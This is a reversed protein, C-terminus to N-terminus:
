YCIMCHVFSCIFIGEFEQYSYEVILDESKTYENYSQQNMWKDISQLIKDIMKDRTKMVYDVLTLFEVDSDASDVHLVWKDNQM